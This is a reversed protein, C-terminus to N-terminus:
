SRPRTTLGISKRRARPNPLPRKQEMEKVLAPRACQQISSPEMRDLPIPVTIPPNQNNAWCAFDGRIELMHRWLRHFQPCIIADAHRPARPWEMSGSILRSNTRAPRRQRASDVARAAPGQGIPAEAVPARRHIEDVTVPHCCSLMFETVIMM